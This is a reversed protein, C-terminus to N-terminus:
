GGTIIEDGVHGLAHRGVLSDAEDLETVLDGLRGGAFDQAADEDRALPCLLFRHCIVIGGACAGSRPDTQRIYQLRVVATAVRDAGAMASNEVPVASMSVANTIM